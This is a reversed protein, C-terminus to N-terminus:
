GSRAEQKKGAPKAAREMTAGAAKRFTATEKVTGKPKTIPPPRTGRKIPMAPSAPDKARPITTTPPSMKIPVTRERNNFPMYVRKKPFARHGLFFIRSRNKELFEDQITTDTEGAVSVAHDELVQELPPIETSKDSPNNVNQGNHVNM